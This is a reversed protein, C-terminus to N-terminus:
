PMRTVNNPDMRCEEQQRGRKPNLVCRHPVQAQADFSGYAAAFLDAHGPSWALATVARSRVRADAFHWLPLLTGSAERLADAADEWYQAPVPLGKVGECVRLLGQAARVGARLGQRSIEQLGWLGAERRVEEADRQLICTSQTVHCM